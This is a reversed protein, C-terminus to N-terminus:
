SRRLRTQQILRAEIKPWEEKWRDSCIVNRIALMSDVHPEAWHMGSGNLRAEVVLKNVRIICFGYRAPIPATFM